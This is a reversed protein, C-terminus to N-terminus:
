ATQQHYRNHYSFQSEHDYDELVSKSILCKTLIVIM